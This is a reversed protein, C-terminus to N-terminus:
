LRPQYNRLLIVRLLLHEHLPLDPGAAGAGVLGVLLAYGCILIVEPELAVGFQGKKHSQGEPLTAAEPIPFEAM